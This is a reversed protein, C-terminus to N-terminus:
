YLLNAILVNYLNGSYMYLVALQLSSFDVGELRVESQTAERVDSTFMAAFYDSASCIVVRHAPIRREEAVLV